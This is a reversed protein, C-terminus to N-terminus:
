LVHDIGTSVPCKSVTSKTEPWLRTHHRWPRRRQSSRSSMQGDHPRKWVLDIWICLKDTLTWFRNLPQQNGNNCFLWFQCALSFFSRWMVSRWRWMRIFGRSSRCFTCSQGQDQSGWWNLGGANVWLAVSTINLYAFVGLFTGFGQFDCTGM